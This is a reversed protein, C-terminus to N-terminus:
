QFIDSFLSGNSSLGIEFDRICKQFERSIIFANVCLLLNINWFLMWTINLDVLMLVILISHVTYTSLFFGLAAYNISISMCGFIFIVAVIYIKHCKSLKTSKIDIIAELLCFLNYKKFATIIWVTFIVIIVVLFNANFLNSFTTVDNRFLMILEGINVTCIISYNCILLVDLFYSLCKYETQSPRLGFQGFIVMTIICIGLIGFHSFFSRIMSMNM